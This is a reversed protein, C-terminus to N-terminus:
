VQRLKEIDVIKTQKGHTDILGQRQLKSFMRSVTELKLGLYCGIEERTMRLYFEAASYGREQFRQSLNILFAAVREEANLNGMMMLLASERVIERSMIKHLHHQLIKDGDCLAELEKFPIVCIVSDELAIADITHQDTGIGDLGLYEGTIQFGTIQERGDHHVAITKSSGARAVYLNRFPDGARYIAEGRKVRRTNGFAGNLKEHSDAKLEIPICLHRSGCTSCALKVSPVPNRLTSQERTQFSLRLAPRPLEITNADDSSITMLRNDYGQTGASLTNASNFM